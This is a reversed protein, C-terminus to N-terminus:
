FSSSAIQAARPSRAGDTLTVVLLGVTAVVLVAATIAGAVLGPEAVASYYPDNGHLLGAVEQGKAFVIAACGWALGLAFLCLGTRVDRRLATGGVCAGVTAILLGGVLALWGYSEVGSSSYTLYTLTRDTETVWPLNIACVLALGAAGALWATVRVRRTPRMPAEARVLEGPSQSYTWAQLRAARESSRPHTPLPRSMPLLLWRLPPPGLLRRRVEAAAANAKTLASDLARPDRTLALAFDDARRERQRQWPAVALGVALSVVAWLGGFLPPEHLAALQGSAAAGVYIAAPVLVTVALGVIRMSTLDGFAIHGMEHAVIARLEDDTVRNVYDRSILLVPRRARVRVAAVRITDGRLSVRPLACGARTSVDALVKGLRAAVLPDEVAGVAIAGVRYTVAALEFWVVACLPGLIPEGAFALVTAWVALGLLAVSYAPQWAGRVRTPRAREFEVGRADAAFAPDPM